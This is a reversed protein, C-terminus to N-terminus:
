LVSRVVDAFARTGVRELVTERAAAIRDKYARIDEAGLRAVEEIPVKTLDIYLDGPIGLRPPVSGHYLPIAGAILADYLKESCYGEADTNEVIIVFTFDAIIDVSTRPDESRHLAHAVTVGKVADVDWGTGHAVVPVGAAALRAAYKERMPDLCTLTVGNVVYTGSLKRREAVVCARPSDEIKPTRLVQLDGPFSLHHCNHPCFVTKLSPEAPSESALLPEWYTLAVDFHKALFARDWQAAHRINPSELTYVIKRLDDRGAFFDLPLDGPNCIAVLLTAGPPINPYNSFGDILNHTEALDRWLTPQWQDLAHNQKSFLKEFFAQTASKSFHFLYMDTKAKYDHRYVDNGKKFFDASVSKATNDVRYALSYDRVVAHPASSLLFKAVQRDAEPKGSRFAANWHPGAAIALDRPILYCSTDVLYDDQACITHSIGGLSECNDNCVVAGASDVIRRLTHAWYGEGGKVIARALNQVHQPDITNDDDLYAVHTANVLFPFSGYIRHGNWGDAGTNEPLVVPVVPVAGNKFTETVKLVADAYQPGDVVVYHTINPLVQAQVSRICEELFPGGITPTIVAIKLLADYRQRHHNVFPDPHSFQTIDPRVPYKMVALMISLVSQDHRHDQFEPDQASSCADSVIAPNKCAELYADLFTLADPHYEYAQIAANVQYADKVDDSVGMAEFCERKTWRRNTYKKEVAEGLQFFSMPGRQSSSDFLGDLPKNVIMAADMYVVRGGYERLAKAIVYPKWAWFAFGRAKTDLAPNEKFFSAITAPTHVVVRAAGGAHVASHRLLAAANEYDKTAFTVVTVGTGAREGDAAGTM